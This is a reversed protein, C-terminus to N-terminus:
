TIASPPAPPDATFAEPKGVEKMLWAAYSITKPGSKGPEAPVQIDLWEETYEAATPSEGSFTMVLPSGDDNVIGKHSVFHLRLWEVMAETPWPQEVYIREDGEDDLAPKGENDYVLMARRVTALIVKLRDRESNKPKRLVTAIDPDGPHTFERQPQSGPRKRSM